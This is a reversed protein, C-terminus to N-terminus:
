QRTFMTVWTSGYKKEKICLLNKFNNKVTLRIPHQVIILSNDKLISGEEIVKLSSQFYDKYYPPDLFIIDFSNKASNFLKLAKLYDMKYINDFMNQDIKKLNNQLLVVARKDIEVFTVSKAGRSIAEIGMAGTGAFLDLFEAGVIKAGIIDFIAERVKGPTPRISKGSFSQLIFGRYLGAIIRM